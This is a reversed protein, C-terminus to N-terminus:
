IDILSEAFALSIEPFLLVNCRSHAYGLWSQASEFLNLCPLNKFTFVLLIAHTVRSCCLALRLGLIILFSGPLIGWLLISQDLTRTRASVVGCDGAKKEMCKTLIWIVGNTTQCNEWARCRYEGTVIRIEQEARAHLSVTDSYNYM